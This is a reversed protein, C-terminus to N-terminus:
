SVKAILEAIHIAHESMTRWGHDGEHTVLSWHPCLEFVGTTESIVGCVNTEEMADKILLLEDHSTGVGIAVPGLRHAILTNMTSTWEAEWSDGDIHDCANPIPSLMVIPGSWVGKKVLYTAVGVGKSAVLLIDPRVDVLTQRLFADQQELAAQFGKRKMTEGFNKLTVDKVRFSTEHTAYSQVLDWDVKSNAANISLVLSTRSKNPAACTNTGSWQSNRVQDSVSSAASAAASWM